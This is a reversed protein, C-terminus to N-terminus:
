NLMFGAKLADRRIIQVRVEAGKANARLQVCTREAVDLRIDGPRLDPCEQKVIAQAAEENGIAETLQRRWYGETREEPVYEQAPQPPAIATPAATSPTELAPAASPSPTTMALGAWEERVRAQEADPSGPTTSSQSSRAAAVSQVVAPASPAVPRPSLRDYVLYALLVGACVWGLWANSRPVTPSPVSSVRGARQYGCRCVGLTNPVRRQCKPCIWSQGTSETAAV